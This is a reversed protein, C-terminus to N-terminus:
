PAEGGRPAAPAAGLHKGHWANLRRMAILGLYIGGFVMSFYPYSMPIELGPSEQM